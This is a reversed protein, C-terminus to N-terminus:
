WIKTRKEPALWMKDGEKVAFTSYFQAINRLPGNARYMEPAHPNTMVQQRLADDRQKGRWIQAWGFFFRQDASLGDLTPAPQGALSLQYARHAIVAGTLDGINEGLTLEGNVHLGPLPEFENYQQVLLTARKTYEEADKPTWWDRLVGNGDYRRGQDDFGHGMEHGIVAGIGGYNVADDAELSFFPPQLIAAPFVIENRVPNYYANVTQPTMIWQEPDIPKGVKALQFENEAIFARTVNGVLDDNTIQVRSYDRWKNPYGIKPRFRALKQQAQGKTEPTMWELGDIGEKFARRLNEVLQEMRAKAEPKFHRDVYLKGLMEGLNGNLTNVARKWRPQNEKVGRLTQGYFGFEADVLEKNLYPAFGNLLSARIYPKWREIPLENVMAAFAKVYSPQSIVIAPAQAIGLEGTWAAWDFGPFQKSLDALAVKNYTKVADRSEVNTWHARALRSELDYTQTAAAGPSPHNSLTLVTTLFAVYKERYAKLPADEKLYYDRDPLGLGGQYIYLTDQDPQRADGDVFGILPNILNLKFMRGFYRALDTKTAIRDIAPLEFALPKLGLENARAENMFSQYFDGIKQAESGPTKNPANAADEVIVRLDAQSKDVLIDFSGYSSKDAPIDTKKLWSGNVHQFLDDQPRTDRDFSAADIGSVLAKPATAAAPASSERACGAAGALATIVVWILLRKM